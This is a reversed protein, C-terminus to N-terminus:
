TVSLEGNVYESLKGILREFKKGQGQFSIEATEGVGGAFFMRSCRIIGPRDRENTRCLALLNPPDKLTVYGGFEPKFIDVQSAHELGFQQVVDNWREESVDNAFHITGNILQM